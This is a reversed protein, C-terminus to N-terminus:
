LAKHLWHGSILDLWCKNWCVIVAVVCECISSGDRLIILIQQMSWVIRQIKPICKLSCIIQVLPQEKFLLWTYLYIIAPLLVNLTTEAQSLGFQFSLLSGHLQNGQSNPEPLTERAVLHMVTTKGLPLKLAPSLSLPPPPLSLSLFLSLSLTYLNTVANLFVSVMQIMKLKFLLVPFLQAVSCGLWLPSFSCVVTLSCQLISLQPWLHLFIFIYVQKSTMIEQLYLFLKFHGLIGPWNNWLPDTATELLWIEWQMYFITHVAWNM